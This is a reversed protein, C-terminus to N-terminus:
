AIAHDEEEIEADPLWGAEQVLENMYDTARQAASAATTIAKNDSKLLQLWHAVYEAHDERAQPELGFLGCCFAATLEAVLEEAAYAQKNFRPQLNRALRDEHGTWHGLEHFRTSHFLEVEDFLEVRPVVIKDRSPVYHASDGHGYTIEAGTAKVWGEIEDNSSTLDGVDPPEWGEVQDANFVSWGRAIWIERKGDNVKGDPEEGDRPKVRIPKHLIVLTSKEGKQVQAEVSQWQNYTAWANSSYAEIQATAWLMVVNIGRYRRKSIANFPTGGTAAMKWPKMWGEGTAMGAEILEVIRDTVAQYVDFKEKAKAM